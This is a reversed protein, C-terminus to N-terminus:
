KSIKTGSLEEREQNGLCASDSDPLDLFPRIALWDEQRISARDVAINNASTFQRDIRALAESSISM